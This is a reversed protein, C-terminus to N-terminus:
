RLPGLPWHVQHNHRKPPCWDHRTPWHSWRPIGDMGDASSLWHDNWNSSPPRGMPKWPIFATSQKPNPKNINNRLQKHNNPVTVNFINFTSKLNATQMAENVESPQLNRQSTTPIPWFRTSRTFMLIAPLHIIMGWFITHIPINIWLRTEATGQRQCSRIHEFDQWSKM